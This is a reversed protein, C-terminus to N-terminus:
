MRLDEYDEQVEMASEYSSAELCLSARFLTRPAYGKDLKTAAIRAYSGEICRRDVCHSRTGFWARRM